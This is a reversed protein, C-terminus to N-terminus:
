RFIVGCRRCYLGEKRERLKGGCYPCKSEKALKKLWEMKIEPISEFRVREIIERNQPTSLETIDRFELVKIRRSKERLLIFSLVVGTVLGGVHALHAINDYGYSLLVFLFEFLGFFIAAYLVKIRTLFAIFFVPLPIVIEDFPYASAFAGLIGFIAGSAGVLIFPGPNVISFVISGGIGSIFYILLFKKWGIRREFPIGWPLVINDHKWTYPLPKCPPVNNNGGHLAPVPFSLSIASQIRPRYEHCDSVPYLHLLHHFQIDPNGAHLFIKQFISCTVRHHYNSCVCHM